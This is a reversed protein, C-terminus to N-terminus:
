VSLKLELVSSKMSDGLVVGMYLHLLLCASHSLKM